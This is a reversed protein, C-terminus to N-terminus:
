PNCCAGTACCTGVMCDSSVTCPDGILGFGRCRESVCSNSVCDVDEACTGGNQISGLPAVCRNSSCRGSLCHWNAECPDDLLELPDCVAVPEGTEVLPRLLCEGQYCRQDFRVPEEPCLPLCQSGCEEPPQGEGCPLSVCAGGGCDADSTCAASCYGFTYYELCRDTCQDHVGCVAGFPRPTYSYVPNSVRCYQVLRTQSPHFGDAEKTECSGPCDDCHPACRNLYPDCRFPSCQQDESCARTCFSWDGSSMCTNCYDGPGCSAGIPDQCYGFTRDCNLTNCHEDESCAQGATSLPVCRPGTEDCWMGNPCGCDPCLTEPTVDCATTVGDICTFGTGARNCPPLCIPSGDPGVGCVADGDCDASTQCGHTCISRAGARLPLSVCEGSRCPVSQHEVCSGGLPSGPSHEPANSCAGVVLLAAVVAVPLGGM